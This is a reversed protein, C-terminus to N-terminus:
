GGAPRILELQSPPLQLLQPQGDQRDSEATVITDSVATVTYPPDSPVGARRVLAGPGWEDTVRPMVNPVTNVPQGTPTSGFQWTGDALLVAGDMRRFGVPLGKSQKADAAPTLTPLLQARLEAVESRVGAVLELMEARLEAVSQASM